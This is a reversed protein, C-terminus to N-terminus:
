CTDPLNKLVVLPATTEMERQKKILLDHTVSNSLFKYIQVTEFSEAAAEVNSVMDFLVLNLRHVHCHIYM